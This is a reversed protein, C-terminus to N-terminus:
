LGIVTKPERVLDHNPEKRQNQDAPNQEQHTLALFPQGFTLKVNEVDENKDSDMAVSGGNLGMCPCLHNKCIELWYSDWFFQNANIEKPLIWLGYGRERWETGYLSM